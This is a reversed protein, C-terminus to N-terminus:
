ENNTFYNGWVAEEKADWRWIHSMKESWVSQKRLEGNEKEMGWVVDVSVGDGDVSIEM